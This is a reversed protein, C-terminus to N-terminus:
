GPVEGPYAFYGAWSANDVFKLDFVGPTEFDWVGAWATEERGECPVNVAAFTIQAITIQQGNVPVLIVAVEDGCGPEFGDGSAEALAIIENVHAWSWTRLGSNSAKDEVLEWIAKQVDGYTYALGDGALDGVVVNNIIWNVLDLNEPHDVTGAPLVEYSSYVNATYLTNNGITHNTDICYGDYVGDLVSGGSVTTEFYSPAGAYPYKVKMSVQDPLALEFADLAAMYTDAHAAIATINGDLDDLVITETHTTVCPDHDAKLEFKGLKPAGKKTTAFDVEDTQIDVATSTLCWDPEDVVYKVTLTTGDDTVQVEGIDVWTTSDTGGDVILDVTTMGDASAGALPMVAVIMAVAALIWLIRRVGSRSSRTHM